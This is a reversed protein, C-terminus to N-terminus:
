NSSKIRSKFLLQINQRVLMVHVKLDYTDLIIRTLGASLIAVGDLVGRSKRAVRAPRGGGRLAAHFLSGRGAVAVAVATCVVVITTITACTCKAAFFHVRQYEGFKDM